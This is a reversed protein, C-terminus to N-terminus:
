EAGTDLYDSMEEDPNQAQYEARYRGIQHELEKQYQFFWEEYRNKFGFRTSLGSLKKPPQWVCNLYFPEQKRETIKETKSKRNVHGCSQMVHIWHTSYDENYHTKELGNNLLQIFKIEQVPVEASCKLCVFFTGTEMATNYTKTDVIVRYDEPLVANQNNLSGGAGLWKGQSLFKLSQTRYFVLVANVDPLKAQL